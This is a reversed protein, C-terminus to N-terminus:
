PLRYLELGPIDAFDRTNLTWLSAQRVIACAAIAIDIQRNRPSSLSVLEHRLRPGRLWEFLVVTPLLLQEGAMVQRQLDPFYSRSGSM